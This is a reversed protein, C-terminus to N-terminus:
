TKSYPTDREEEEEKKKKKKKQIKIEILTLNEKYFLIQSSSRYTIKM